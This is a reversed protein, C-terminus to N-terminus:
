EGTANAATAKRNRRVRQARLPKINAHISVGVVDRCDLVQPFVAGLEVLTSVILEMNAPRPTFEGREFSEITRESLGAHNALQAQTIGLLLRACACQHPTIPRAM